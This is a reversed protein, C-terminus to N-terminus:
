ADSIEKEDEFIKVKSISTGPYVITRKNCEIIMFNGHFNIEKYVNHFIDTDGNNLYIEVRMLM